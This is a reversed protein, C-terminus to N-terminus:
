RKMGLYVEPGSVKSWRSSAIPGYRAVVHLPPAPAHKPIPPPPPRMHTQPPPHQSQSHSAASLRQKWANRIAMSRSLLGEKEVGEVISKIINEVVNCHNGNPKDDRFRMMRWHSAVADWYVEVIRDDVQERSLKLKQWEEDDVYMEDYLEYKAVGREDGCWVHLLFVPKAHFDPKEPQNRLPPFRLELKFDISNESPPKWKMINPDTGPTYPTNVCTYILGDNGHQLAPIDVAFVKDVHYSFNIEKVKIDFPQSKVMHPHDELMKAYPKYFWEQLRGYRKDLPRSMVNAEDVVLCDFALFRLTQEKTRPNVDIVLEGDILTDRLPMMPNEHHPFFIGSVTHYTNHRDILYLSQDGSVLNTNILFLVRVGDSKECVWYDASELKDLDRAGFSVPQSGPFRPRDMHCIKAVHAKLWNEQESNRPVLTGPIDPIVPM